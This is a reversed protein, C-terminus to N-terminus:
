TSGRRCSNPNKWHRSPSTFSQPNRHALPHHTFCHQRASLAFHLIILAFTLIGRLWRQNHSQISVKASQM